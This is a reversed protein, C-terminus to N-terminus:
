FSRTITAGPQPLTFASIRVTRPSETKYFLNVGVRALRQAMWASDTDVIQGLLLKTGIAVIKANMEIKEQATGGLTSRRVNVTL